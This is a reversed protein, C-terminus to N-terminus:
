YYYYYYYYYYYNCKIDKAIFLHLHRVRHVCGNTVNYLDIQNKGSFKMHYDTGPCQTPGLSM